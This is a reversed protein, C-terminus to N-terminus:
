RAFNVSLGGGIDILRIQRRGVRRNIDLAFDVTARIGDIALAIDVGQSGVHCHIADLWAHQQYAAVLAARSEEDKLGVGFKSTLTATSFAALSGAGVGPNVRM